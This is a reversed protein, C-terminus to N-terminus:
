AQFRMKSCLYSKFSQMTPNRYPCTQPLVMYHYDRTLQPPKSGGWSISLYDNCTLLALGHLEICTNPTESRELGIQFSQM